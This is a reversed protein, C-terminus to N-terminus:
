ACTKDGDNDFDSADVGMSGEADGNGNLASGSVLGADVLTGDRRNMRLQNQEGDNAVYIDPWGDGDFDASAM